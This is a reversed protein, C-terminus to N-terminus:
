VGSTPCHQRREMTSLFRPTRQTAWISGMVDPAYRLVNNGEVPYWLLDGAVFVNPDSSFLIELNEKILVILQFHETNESIPQGDCDPYVIEPKTPSKLEAVM